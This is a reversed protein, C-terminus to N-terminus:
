AALRMANPITASIRKAININHPSTFFNDRIVRYNQRKAVMAQINALSLVTVGLANKKSVGAILFSQCPIGCLLIDHDPIESYKKSM